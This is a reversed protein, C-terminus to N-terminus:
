KATNGLLWRFGQISDNRQKQSFSAKPWWSWFGHPLGPYIDLKTPVGSEERLLKEYILGEDRLPDMGAVQLYTPPLSKHGSHWVAPSMLPSMPDDEYNKRFLSIAGENLIPANKNEERSKYESRWRTPVAQPALLSPISLYTGTLPPLMGEDRALHSIVCAMNAGASIGAIVFGKALNGGHIDSNAAVWKVADYCDFVPVPFKVEPALRYDVNISVGNVEECWTRCLLAENDLGGLVWGGGHLMVMVPGGQSAPGHYVRVVIESGDRTLVKHDLEVTASTSPGSASTMALKKKRLTERLAQIDTTADLSSVPGSAALIQALEPDTYGVVKALAIDAM